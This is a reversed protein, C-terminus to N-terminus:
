RRRRMRMDMSFRNRASGGCYSMTSVPRISIATKMARHNFFEERMRLNRSGGMVSKPFVRENSVAIRKM